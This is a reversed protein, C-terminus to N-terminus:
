LTQLPLGTGEGGKLFIMGHIKMTDADKAEEGGEQQGVRGMGLHGVAGDTFYVDPTGEVESVEAAIGGGVAMVDFPVDDIAAGVDAVEGGGVEIGQLGTM